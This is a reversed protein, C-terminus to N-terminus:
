QVLAIRNATEASPTLDVSLLLGAVRRFMPVPMPLRM